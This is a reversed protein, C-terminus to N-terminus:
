LCSGEIDQLQRKLCKRYFLCEGVLTLAQELDEQAKHLCRMESYIEARERFHSSDSPDLVVVQNIGRLESNSDGKLRYYKARLEFIDPNSPDLEHERIFQM